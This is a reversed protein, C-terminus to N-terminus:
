GSKWAWVVTRKENEPKTDWVADSLGIMQKINKARVVCVPYWKEAVGGCKM